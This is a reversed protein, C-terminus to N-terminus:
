NTDELSKEEKKGKIQTLYDHFNEIDFHRILQVKFLTSPHIM